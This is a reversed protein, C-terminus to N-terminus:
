AERKEKEKLVIDTMVEMGTRRMGMVLMVVMTMAM